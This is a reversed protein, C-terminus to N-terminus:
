RPVAIDQTLQAVGKGVRITTRESRENTGPKQAWVVYRGPSLRAVAPNSFTEFPLTAVSQDAAAEMVKPLYFVQWHPSEVSGKWTHISVAVDTAMGTPGLRCHEAKEALDDRVDAIVTAVNLGAGDARAADLVAADYALARRLRDTPTAKRTAVPVKAWAARMFDVSELGGRILVAVSDCCRTRWAEDHFTSQLRGLLSDVTLAALSDIGAIAYRPSGSQVGGAQGDARVTILLFVIPTLSAMGIRM